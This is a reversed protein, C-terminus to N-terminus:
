KRWRKAINAGNWDMCGEARKKYIYCFLHFCDDSDELNDFNDHKMKFFNSLYINIEKYLRKKENTRVFEKM